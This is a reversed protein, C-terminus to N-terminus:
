NSTPSLRQLAPTMVTAFVEPKDYARASLMAGYICAIFTEAEVAPTDSLRLSGEAAGKEM